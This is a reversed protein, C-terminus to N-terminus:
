PGFFFISEIQAPIDNWYDLFTAEADPMNSTSRASNLKSHISGNNAYNQVDFDIERALHCTRCYKRPVAQYFTAAAGATTPAAGSATTTGTAWGLPTFPHGADDLYCNGVSVGGCWAYWSDIQEKIRNNPLSAKIWWNLKRMTQRQAPESFLSSVNSQEYVFLQADFPLFNAGSVSHTSPSYDGGHCSLCMGPSGKVGESDLGVVTLLGDVPTSNVLPPTNLGSNLKYVFFKVEGGGTKEMAVAAIPDTNNQAKIIAQAPNGRPLLHNTDDGFNTVYCATTRTFFSIPYAPIRLLKARKTKATLQDLQEDSFVSGDRVGLAAFQKKVAVSVAKDIPWRFTNYARCHMDRGFGLDVKNYYVARLESPSPTLPNASFGHTAKWASFTGRSPTPLGALDLAGIHKYYAIGETNCGVGSCGGMQSELGIYSGSHTPNALATTSFLLFALVGQLVVRGFTKIRTFLCALKM